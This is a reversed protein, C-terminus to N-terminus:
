GKVVALCDLVNQNGMKYVFNTFVQKTKEYGRYRRYPKCMFKILEDRETKLEIKPLTVM